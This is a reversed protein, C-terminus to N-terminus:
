KILQLVKFQPGSSTGGPESAPDLGRYGIWHAVVDQGQIRDVFVGAFNTFKFPKAGNAPGETPDFMPIPRIRPSHRCNAGDSSLSYEADTVCDLNDNWVAQPDLDILDGFGQKTPGVMNGPEAEALHGISYSLGPNVCDRVNERYDDGGSQGPPRWPYYWSPNLGSTGNSKLVIEDGIDDASYGTFTEDNITPPETSTDMWPIYADGKDPNFDNPDNGPGTGETWRDPLALPLLCNIGGANSARATANAAINVTNVGFIRAFFTGIANDRAETRLVRVTVTRSALDVDIDEDLVVASAGRVSNRSAYAQAQARAASANDPSDILMSAGALAAGDAASQAEGRAVTLM